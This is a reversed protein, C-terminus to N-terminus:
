SFVGMLRNWLGSIIRDEPEEVYELVIKGYQTSIDIVSGEWVEDSKM